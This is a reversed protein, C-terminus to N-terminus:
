LSTDIKPKNSELKKPLSQPTKPDVKELPTGDVSKPITLGQLQVAMCFSNENADVIVADDGSKTQFVMNIMGPVQSSETIFRMVYNNEKMFLFGYVPTTCYVEVPRAPVTKWKEPDLSKAEALVSFSSAALLGLALFIRRM